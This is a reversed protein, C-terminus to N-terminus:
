WEQSPDYNSSYSYNRPNLPDVAILRKLENSKIGLLDALLVRLLFLGEAYTRIEDFEASDSVRAAHKSDNYVNAMREPWSPFEKKGLIPNARKRLRQCEPLFGTFKDGIEETPYLYHFLGDFAGGLLQIRRTLPLKQRLVLNLTQISRSSRKDLCLEFWKQVGATGILSFPFLHHTPPKVDPVTTVQDWGDIEFWLASPESNLDKPPPFSVKVDVIEQLTWSSISLLDRVMEIRGFHQRWVSPASAEIEFLGLSKVTISKGRHSPYSSEEWRWDSRFTLKTDASQHIEIPPNNVTEIHVSGLRGDRFENTREISSVGLWNFLGTIEARTSGCAASIPVEPIQHVVHHALYTIRANRCLTSTSREIERCSYLALRLDGDSFTFFYSNRGSNAVNPESLGGLDGFLEREPFFITLSIKGDSRKTM